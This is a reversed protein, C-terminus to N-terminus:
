EHGGTNVYAQNYADGLNIKVFACDRQPPSTVCYLSQENFEHASQSTFYHGATVAMM